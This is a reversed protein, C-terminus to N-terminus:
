IAYCGSDRRWDPESFKSPIPFARESRPEMKDLVFKTDTNDDYLRVYFYQTKTTQNRVNLVYRTPNTYSLTGGAFSRELMQPALSVSADIGECKYPLMAAIQDAKYRLPNERVLVLLRELVEQMRDDCSLQRRDIEMPVFGVATHLKALCLDADSMQVVKAAPM